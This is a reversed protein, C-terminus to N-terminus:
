SAQSPVNKQAAPDTRLPRPPERFDPPVDGSRTAHGHRAPSTRLSRRRTGSPSPMPFSRYSSGEYSPHLCAHGGVQSTYFVGTPRSVIIAWCEYQCLDVTIKRPAPMFSNIPLFCSHAPEQQRRVFEEAEQVPFGFRELERRRRVFGKM